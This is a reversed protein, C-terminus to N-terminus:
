DLVTEGAKSNLTWSIGKVEPMERGNDVGIEMKIVTELKDSMTKVLEQNQSKTAALNTMEQPDTQLDFLEVDNNAYLEDITKPRNRSM